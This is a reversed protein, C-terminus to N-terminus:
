SKNEVESEQKGGLKLVIIQAPEMDYSLWDATFTHTFDSVADKAQRDGSYPAHLYFKHGSAPDTNAIVILQECPDSPNIRRYALIKNGESEVHPRDISAASTNSVLGINERRLTHLRHIFNVLNDQTLWNYAGINFLPLKEQGYFATQDETFGLGTNVPFTELLEFGSHVMPMVSPLFCFLGYGIKSFRAGGRAAARPTNHTELTGFVPLPKEQMAYDIMRSFSDFGCEFGFGLAADYGARRSAPTPYFNEEFFAFAPDNKRAKEMISGILKRPIAHGMDIMSGDIGYKKQFHPIVDSLYEWLPTNVNTAKALAPGYFRLTDYATYNYRDKPDRYMRLYTVDDWAPQIDDPPWDAFAPPIVAQGQDTSAVYDAKEQAIQEPSPPTVFMRRYNEGPAIHKKGGAPIRKIQELEAPSFEPKAFSDADERRIWYFWDPHRAANVNDRAATRLAFELVVRIGLIHAAEVLAAFQQEVAMGALLPDGLKEDFDLLDATAYPSGLTGKRGSQGIRNVPLLYLTDAGLYQIYPLLAIMKLFTGCDRIGKENLTLDIGSTGIVNNGDHDFAATLRPFANYLVARPSWKGKEKRITSLSRAYNVSSRSLKLLGDITERYYDAARTFTYKPPNEPSNWVSPVYIFTDSLRKKESLIERIRYLHLKKNM